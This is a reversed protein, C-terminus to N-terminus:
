NNKFSWLLEVMLGGFRDTDIYAFRGSGPKGKEGWGGSQAVAFGQATLQRIAADIDPVNLGVHQIGAGRKEIHDGYVTPEQLPICWEYVISGHRQWGLKMDFDHEKGYYRKEWVPSHTINMAPIGISEWFRSVEEPRNTAFAYQTFRGDFPAQPPINAHMDPGSMIGLVYDGKEYTDFFSYHVFGDGNHVKGQQVVAIGLQQLRDIEQEYAQLDPFRHVLSFAVAGHEQLYEKFYSNGENPQIWSVNADGLKGLAVKATFPQHEGRYQNEEFKVEQISSISQFGFNKWGQTVQDIDDVLWIIQDVKKYPEPLQAESAITICFLSLFIISNKM